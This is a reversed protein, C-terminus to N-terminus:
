RKVESLRRPTWHLDREWPLGFRGRMEAYEKLSISGGEFEFGDVWAFAIDEGDFEVLYATWSGTPDFLKVRLLPDAEQATAGLDPMEDEPRIYDYASEGEPRGEAERWKEMGPTLNRFEKM